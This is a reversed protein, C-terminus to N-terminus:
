AETVGNNEESVDVGIVPSVVTGLDGVVDTRNVADVFYSQNSRHEDNGTRAGAMPMMGAGTGLGTSSVNPAVTTTAHTNAVSAAHTETTGPQSITGPQLNKQTTATPDASKLTSSNQTPNVGAQVTTTKQPSTTTKSPDTTTKSTDTTSAKNAGPVFDLVVKSGANATTILPKGVNTLISKVLTFPTKTASAANTPTANTAVPPPTEVKQGAETMQATQTTMSARTGQVVELAASIHEAAAAMIMAQGPPTWIVPAAAAATAVFSEAITALNANGAAVTATANTTLGSIQTAQNNVKDGAAVATKSTTTANTGANSAWESDLVTTAGTALELAANMFATSDTLITSPNLSALYGTGFSSWADNIPKLLQDVTPITPLQFGLLSELQQQPTPPTTATVAPTATVTATSAATSSNSQTSM